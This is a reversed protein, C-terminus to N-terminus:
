LTYDREGTYEAIPKITQWMIHADEIGQMICIIETLTLGSVFKIEVDPIPKGKLKMQTIVFNYGKSKNLFKVADPLIEARFKYTTM